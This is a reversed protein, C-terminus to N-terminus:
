KYTSLGSQQSYYTTIAKIDADSLQGAFANMQAETRVGDRYDNLAQELYSQHQGALHPWANAASQGTQGHCAVCTAAAEPLTGNADGGAFEGKTALYAAIDAMDEDTFSGAQADMTSHKRTGDRYGKLAAVIYEPWQGVLRPVKYTPYVNDYSESGHCGICTDFLVEGREVDAANSLSPILLLAAATASLIRTFRLLM